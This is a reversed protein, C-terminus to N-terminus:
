RKRPAGRKLLAMLDLAAPSLYGGRRTVICVPNALNLGTVKIRALSGATLEDGIASEPLVALGYGAETLRKQATLSDVPTWDLEAIGLVQFHAFLNSASTEPIDRANPFFFWHANQLPRLSRLTKGALPHEPASVIHLHEGPIELCDLDPARDLHYRLGIAAEGNRVLESVEASTATRLRLDIKEHSSSFRKLVPTLGAGALTGVAAISLSGGTGSKLNAIAARGDEAAALVRQAHPLLVHGASSLTVGSAAREFLPVGLEEELLAIRRSIAPQSRALRAAAGSFSGTQHISIFTRLAETDMRCYM